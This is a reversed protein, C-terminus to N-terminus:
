AGDDTEHSPDPERRNDHQHPGLDVGLHLVLRGLIGGLASMLRQAGAARLHGICDPLGLASAHSSLRFGSRGSLLVPLKFGKASRRLFVLPDGLGGLDDSHCRRVCRQEAGQWWLPQAERLDHDLSVVSCYTCIAYPDYGELGPLPYARWRGRLPSTRRVARCVSIAAPAPLCRQWSAPSLRVPRPLSAAKAGSSRLFARHM